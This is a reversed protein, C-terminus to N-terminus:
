NGDLVTEGNSRAIKKATNRDSSGNSSIGDSDKTDNCNSGRSRHGKRRILSMHSRTTNNTEKAVLAELVELTDETTTAPLAAQLAMPTEARVKPAKM